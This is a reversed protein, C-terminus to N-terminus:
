KTALLLSVVISVVLLGVAIPLGIFAWPCWWCEVKEAPDYLAKKPNYEYWKTM